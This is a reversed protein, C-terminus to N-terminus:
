VEWLLRRGHVDLCWLWCWRRAHRFAGDVRGGVNRTRDFLEGRTQLDGDVSQSRRDFTGLPWSLRECSKAAQGPFRWQGAEENRKQEPDRDRPPASCLPEVRFYGCRVPRFRARVSVI